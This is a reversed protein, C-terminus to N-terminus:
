AAKPLRRTRGVTRQEPFSRRDCEDVLAVRLDEPEDAWLDAGIEEALGPARRFVGGGVVIQLNPRSGIKQITDIIERIGPADSASAAFLLLVDPDDRGIDELIEDVPVGGGLFRVLHGDHELVAAFIEAQLEEILSTGCHLTIRRPQLEADLPTPDLRQTIGNAALRASRIMINLAAQSAQDERDFQQIRELAPLVVQMLLRDPPATKLLHEIHDRTEGRDGRLCLELLREVDMDITM